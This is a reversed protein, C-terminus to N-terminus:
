PAGRAEKELLRLAEEDSLGELEALLDTMEDHDAAGAQQELIVRAL